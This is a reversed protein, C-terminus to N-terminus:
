LNLFYLYFGLFTPYLRSFRVFVRLTIISFTPGMNKANKKTKSTM